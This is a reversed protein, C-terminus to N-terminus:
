RPSRTPRVVKMKKLPNCFYLLQSLLINLKTPLANFLGGLKTAAAQKSGPRALSKEACGRVQVYCNYTGGIVHRGRETEDVYNRIDFKTQLRGCNLNM